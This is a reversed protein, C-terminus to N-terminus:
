ETGSVAGPESLDSSYRTALVGNVPVKHTQKQHDNGLVLGQGSAATTSPIFTIYSTGEGSDGAPTRGPFMNVEVFHLRFTASHTHPEKFEQSLFVSIDGFGEDRADTRPHTPLSSLGNTDEKQRLVKQGRHASLVIKWTEAKIHSNSNGPGSDSELGGRRLLRSSGSPQSLEWWVRQQTPSLAALSSEPFQQDKFWSKPFQLLLPYPSNKPSLHAARLDQCQWKGTFQTVKLLYCAQKSGWNQGDTFPVHYQRDM